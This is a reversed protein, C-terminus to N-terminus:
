RQIKLRSCMRSKNGDNDIQLGDLLPHDVPGGDSSYISLLFVVFVSSLLSSTGDDSVDRGNTIISNQACM